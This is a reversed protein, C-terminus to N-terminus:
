TIWKCKIPNAGHQLGVVILINNYMILHMKDEIDEHRFPANHSSMAEIYPQPDKEIMLTRFGRGFSSCCGM